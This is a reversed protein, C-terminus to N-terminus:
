KSKSFKKLKAGLAKFNFTLMIKEVPVLIVAATLVLSFDFTITQHLPTVFETCDREPSLGFSECAFYDILANYHALPSLFHIHSLQVIVLFPIFMTYFLSVLLKIETWISSGTM